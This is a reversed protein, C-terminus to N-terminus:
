LTYIFDPRMDGLLKIEQASLGQVWIDRDGRRRKQNEIHLLTYQLISGGFLFVTIFALVTGHGPYFDPADSGRYINSSIIGSLNGCGIILGLTIGRKYVGVLTDTAPPNM